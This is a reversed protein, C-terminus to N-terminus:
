GISAYAYWRLGIRVLGSVRSVAREDGDLQGDERFHLKGWEHSVFQVLVTGMGLELFTQLVLLSTFTYYYGQQIPPLYTVVLGLSVIASSLVIARNLLSYFVAQDIDALRMARKLM